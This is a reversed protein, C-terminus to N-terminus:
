ICGCGSAADLAALGAFFSILCSRPRLRNQDLDLRLRDIFAPYRGLEGGIQGTLGTSISLLAGHGRQEIALSFAKEGVWIVLLSEEREFLVEKERTFPFGYDFNVLTTQFRFAKRLLGALAGLDMEFHCLNILVATVIQFPGGRAKAICEIGVILV